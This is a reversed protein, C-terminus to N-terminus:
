DKWVEGDRWISGDNWFGTTMIWVSCVIKTIINPLLVSVSEWCYGLLRLPTSRTLKAGFRKELQFGM